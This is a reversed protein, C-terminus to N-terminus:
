KRLLRNCLEVDNWDIEAAREPHWMLGLIPYSEHEFAEISGDEATALVRLTVPLTTIGFNHYSNVTRQILEGSINVQILHTVGAHRSVATVNGGFYQAIFQSGRCVGVLPIRFRICYELLSTEFQDRAINEPNNVLTSLDNGGSLFIGCPNLESFYEQFNVTSLLPIPLVGLQHCFLGWRRDLAEQSDNYQNVIRRQSILVVRM